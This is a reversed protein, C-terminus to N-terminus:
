FKGKDARGLSRNPATNAKRRLRKLNSFHTQSALGYSVGFQFKPRAHYM